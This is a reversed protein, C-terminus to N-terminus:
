RARGAASDAPFTTVYNSSALVRIIKLPRSGSRRRRATQKSGTSLSAELEALTFRTRAPSGASGSSLENVAGLEALKAGFHRKDYTAPRRGAAPSSDRVSSTPHEIEGNADLVGSRFEISSLHGEGVARVSMVFRQQVARSAQEPGAGPRDVSQLARRGRDLVRAHLLRRDLPTAGGVRGRPTPCTNHSRTSIAARAAGASTATAGAFRRLSAPSDARGGREEPIASCARGDALQARSQGAPDSEEGPLYPKALVRRADHLCAIGAHARHAIPLMPSPRPQSPNRLRRARGSDGALELMGRAPGHLFCITSEAGQNHNVHPVGIGDRCGGTTFDYLPLAWVPQRRPVLRVGRAHAAPLAPRRTAAYARRFALVFAAADIAQEDAHAKDGGRNTGAPTASWRWSTASRLVVTKSSSSRSARAVCRQGSRRHGLLRRFLALPLLANDYTLTPSSGAGSTAPTRVTASSCSRSWVRRALRRGGATARIPRSCTSSASFQSAATGRSGSDARMRCLARRADRARALPLGRGAAGTAAAGLAWVARGICDDSPPASDLVRDYSLSTAFAATRRAAVRTPLSLYTRSSSAADEHASHSATPM